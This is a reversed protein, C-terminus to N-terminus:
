NGQKVEQEKIRGRGRDEKRERMEEGRIEGEREKKGTREM